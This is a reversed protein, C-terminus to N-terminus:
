DHKVEWKCPAHHMDEFLCEGDQVNYLRCNICNKHKQCEEKIISLIHLVDTATIM